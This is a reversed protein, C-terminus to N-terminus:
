HEKWKAKQQAQHIKKGVEKEFSKQLKTSKADGKSANNFHKQMIKVLDDSVHPKDGKDMVEKAAADVHSNFDDPLVPEGSIVSSVADIVGKLGSATNNFPNPDTM